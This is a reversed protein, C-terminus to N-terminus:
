CAVALGCLLSRSEGWYAWKRGAWKAAYPLAVISWILQLQRLSEEWQLQDEHAQQSSTWSDTDSYADTRAAVTLSRLSVLRRFAGSSSSSSVSSRRASALFSPPLYGTPSPPAALSSM